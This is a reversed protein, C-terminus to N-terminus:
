WPWSEGKYDLYLHDNAYRHQELVDAMGEVSTAVDIEAEVTGDLTGM